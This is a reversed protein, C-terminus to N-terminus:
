LIPPPELGLLVKGFTETAQDMEFFAHSSIMTIDRYFMQLISHQRFANAGASLVSDTIAERCYDVILAARARLEFLRRVPGDAPILPRMIEAVFAALMSEALAANTEARGVRMQAGVKAAAVAGSNTHVRTRNIHILENAAGRAAGVFVPVIYGITVLAAPRSYLPNQPYLSAGYGQGEGFAERPLTRHAPVFVDRLNVDFSGTARMGEVQWSGEVIEVDARPVMFALGAGGGANEPMPAACLIYEAHWCGSVWNARGSAIYGGETPRLRITPVLSGALLQRKSKAFFEEQFEPPFRCAVWTSGIYFCVNWAVSPCAAGFLQVIQSVTDLNAESGGRSAPAMARILGSACLSEVLDDPLFSRKEIEGVRKSVAGAIEKASAILTKGDV